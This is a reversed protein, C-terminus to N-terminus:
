VVSKRDKDIYQGHQTRSSQTSWVKIKTFLLGCNFHLFNTHVPFPWPTQAPPSPCLSWSMLGTTLSARLIFYHLCFLHARTGGIRSELLREEGADCLQYTGSLSSPPCVANWWGSHSFLRSSLASCGPLASVGSLWFIFPLHIYIIKKFLKRLKLLLSTFCWYDFLFFWLEKSKINQMFLLYFPSCPIFYESLSLIHCNMKFYNFIVAKIGLYPFNHYLFSDDEWYSDPLEKTHGSTNEFSSM